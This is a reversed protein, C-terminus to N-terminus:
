FVNLLMPHLKKSATNYQLVQKSICCGCAATSSNVGLYARESGNKGWAALVNINWWMKKVWCDSSLVLTYVRSVAQVSQIKVTKNMCRMRRRSKPTLHFTLFFVRGQTITNSIIKHAQVSGQCGWAAARCSKLLKVLAESPCVVVRQQNCYQLIVSKKKECAPDM